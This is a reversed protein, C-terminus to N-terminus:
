AEHRCACATRLLHTEGQAERRDTRQAKVRRRTGGSPTRQESTTFSSIGRIRFLMKFLWFRRGQPMHKGTAASSAPTCERSSPADRATAAM